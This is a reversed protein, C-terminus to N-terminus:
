PDARGTGRRAPIGIRQTGLHRDLVAAAAGVLLHDDGLSAPRVALSPTDILPTRDGIEAAAAAVFAHSTAAAHGGIVITAIDLAAAVGAIAAGLVAGARGLLDDDGDAAFLPDAVVAELCGRQGCVCLPGDPDVVVHGIEGSSGNPGARLAGDLILGVGLGADIQVFMLDTSPEDAFTIEGLAAANADNLVVVDTDLAAELRTALDVNHWRLHAAEVIVSRGVVVGPSAVGVGLLPRTASRVVTRGLEIVAGIAAEEVLEGRLMEHRAIIRGDLDVLAGVLRHRSSIDLVVIQRGDPRISVPTAPKGVAGSSEPELERILEEDLLDRVLSGVTAPTLVLQRALEARPAPGNRLASLVLRRNLDRGDTPTVGIM